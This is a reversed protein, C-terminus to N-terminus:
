LLGQAKLSQIERFNMNKPEKSEEKKEKQFKKPPAIPEKKNYNVEVWEMLADINTNNRKCFGIAWDYIEKYETIAKLEKSPYAKEIQSAVKVGDIKKLSRYVKMKCNNSCFRGKNNEPEFEKKCDPNECIKM